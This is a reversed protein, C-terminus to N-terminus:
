FNNRKNMMKFLLKSMSRHTSAATIIHINLHISSKIFQYKINKLTKNSKSERYVMQYDVFIYFPMDLNTVISKVFDRTDFDTHLKVIEAPQWM